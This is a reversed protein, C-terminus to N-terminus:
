KVATKSTAPKLTILTGVHSKRNRSAQNTAPKPALLMGVHSKTKKLPHRALPQNLHQSHEQMFQSSLSQRHTVLGALAVLTLTRSHLCPAASVHTVFVTYVFPINYFLTYQLDHINYFLTCFLYHINFFLAYLLYHVNYFLAYLLYHINTFLIIYVFTTYMTLCHICFSSHILVTYAFPLTSTFQLCHICFTTYITFCHM